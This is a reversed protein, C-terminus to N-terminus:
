ITLIAEFLALMGYIHYFPLIGLSAGGSLEPLAVMVM